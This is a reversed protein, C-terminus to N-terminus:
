SHGNQSPDIERILFFGDDGQKQYLPMLILGDDQARIKGTEDQALWEGKKVPQFNRYGPQMEFNDEPRVSHVEILDAIKPLGRSYEILLNDHRNEVDRAEVCGITRMCNIIAAMARNVSLPDNHQGSEFAVGTIPIGFNNSNFFHLLTGDLGELLGKIVPAHLELAIRVSKEEHTVVSFIGGTATTTHLDLIITETPQYAAIEGEIITLLEKMELDEAFLQDRPTNRIKQVNATTWHRNLDKEVFRSGTAMAQLNGRLGIMKGRFTFGPNTIPEIELIKFIIELAKVGALENGHMGGICILLPGKDPGAFAGIIREPKTM